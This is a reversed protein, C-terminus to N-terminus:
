EIFQLLRMGIFLYDRFFLILLFSLIKLAAEIHFTDLSLLFHVFEVLNVFLEFLLLHDQCGPLPHWFFPVFPRVADNLHLRFGDNQFLLALQVVQFANLSYEFLM